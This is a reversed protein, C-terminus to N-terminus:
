EWGSISNILIYELLYLQHIDLIQYLYFHSITSQELTILQIEM